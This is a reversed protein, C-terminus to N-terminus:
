IWLGTFAYPRGLQQGKALFTNFALSIRESDNEQEVVGHDLWSPFVILTNKLPTIDWFKSNFSHYDLNDYNNLDFAEYIEFPNYFRLASNNDSLYFVGSLISNKHNHVHHSASKLTVNSWSTVIELKVKWGLVDSAYHNVAKTCYEKLFSFGQEEFIQYNASKLNSVNELYQVQKTYNVLDTLDNDKFDNYVGAGVTFLPITQNSM